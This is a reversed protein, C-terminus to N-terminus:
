LSNPEAFLFLFTVVETERVFAEPREAVDGVCAGGKAGFIPLMVLCHVPLKRLSQELFHVPSFLGAHQELVVM